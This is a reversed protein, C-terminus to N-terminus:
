KWSLNATVIANEITMANAAEIAIKSVADGVVSARARVKNMEDIEVEAEVGVVEDGAAKGVRNWRSAESAEAKNQTNQRNELRQQSVIWIRASAVRSRNSAAKTRDEVVKMRDEVVKMRDEVVKMRDDGAIRRGDGAAVVAKARDKAALRVNVNVAVSVAIEVGSVVVNVGAIAMSVGANAITDSRGDALRSSQSANGSKSARRNRGRYRRRCKSEPQQLLPLLPLRNRSKRHRYAWVL